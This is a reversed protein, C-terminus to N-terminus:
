REGSVTPIRDGPRGLRLRDRLYDLYDPGPPELQLEELVPLFYALSRIPPLPTLEPPRTSRRGIALLLAMEALYFPVGREFLDAAIRRDQPSPRRVATHPLGCYLELLTRVYVAQTM